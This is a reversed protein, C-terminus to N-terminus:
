AIGHETGWTQLFEKVTSTEWDSPRPLYKGNDDVCGNADSDWYSRRYPLHGIIRDCLAVTPSVVTWIEDGFHFHGGPTCSQLARRLRLVPRVGVNTHCAVDGETMIRGNSQVYAVTAPNPGPTCLWYADDSMLSVSGSEEIASAEPMTLLTVSVGSTCEEKFREASGDEKAWKLAMPGIDPFRSMLENVENPNYGWINKPQGNPYRAVFTGACRGKKAKRQFTLYIFEGKEDFRASSSTVETGDTFRIFPTTERM